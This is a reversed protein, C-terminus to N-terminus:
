SPSECFCGCHSNCGRGEPPCAYRCGAVAPWLREDPTIVHCDAGLLSELEAESGAWCWEESEPCMAGSDCVYVHGAEGWTPWPPWSDGDGDSDCAVLALLLLAKM